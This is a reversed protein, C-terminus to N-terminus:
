SSEYDAFTSVKADAACHACLIEEREYDESSVKVPRGCRECQPMDKLGGGPKTQSGARFIREV